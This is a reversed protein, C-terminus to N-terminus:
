FRANMSYQGALGCYNMTALRLRKPKRNRFSKEPREKLSRTERNDWFRELAENVLVYKRDGARKVFIASPVYNIILDLFARNQDRQHEARRQATVNEFTAV